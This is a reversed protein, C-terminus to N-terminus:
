LITNQATIRFYFFRADLRAETPRFRKKRIGVRTEGAIRRMKFPVAIQVAQQAARQLAAQAAPQATAPQAAPQDVPQLISSVTCSASLALFLLGEWLPFSTRARYSRSIDLM